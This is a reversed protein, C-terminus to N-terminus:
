GIKGLFDTLYETEGISLSTDEELKVQLKEKILGLTQTDNKISAHVALGIVANNRPFGVTYEFARAVAATKDDQEYVAICLTGYVYQEYSTPNNGTKDKCYTSFKKDDILKEACYIIEEEDDLRVATDFAFGIHYINKTSKYARKSFSLSSKDMGLNYTMDAMTVPFFAILTILMLAFLVAAAALTKWVADRVIKEMKM